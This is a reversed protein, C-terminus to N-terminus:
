AKGGAYVSEGLEAIAREIEEAIKKEVVAAKMHPTELALAVRQPVARLVGVIRQATDAADRQVLELEVFRGSEREVEMARLKAKSEREGTEAALLRRELEATEAYVKEDATRLGRLVEVASEPLRGNTLPHIDGRAIARGVTSQSCGVRRAIEEQSLGELPPKEMAPAAPKEAKAVKAPAAKEPTVKRGKSM